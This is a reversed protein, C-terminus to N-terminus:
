ARRRPARRTRTGPRHEPPAYLTYLKLVQTRSPNIVNHRTGAPVLVADGSQLAHRRGDLVLVARGQEIRIFQDTDPHVESGIEEGPVLSMVVLQLRRGTSVVRRFLMNRESAREISGVWPTSPM